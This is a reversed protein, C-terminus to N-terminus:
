PSPPSNNTAPAPAALGAPAAKTSGAAGPTKTPTEGGQFPDDFPSRFVAPTSSVPTAPTAPIGAAVPTRPTSKKEAALVDRLRVGLSKRSAPDLWLGIRREIGDQDQYFDPRYIYLENPQAEDPRPTWPTPLSMTVWYRVQRPDVPPDDPNDTSPVEGPAATPASATSTAPTATSAKSVVAALSPGPPVAAGAYIQPAFMGDNGALALFDAPHPGPRQIPRYTTYSHFSDTSDDLLNAVQAPTALVVPSIPRAFQARTVFTWEDTKAYRDAPAELFNGDEDVAGSRWGIHTPTVRLEVIEPLWFPGPYWAWIKDAGRKWYGYHETVWSYPLSGAWYWGFDTYLWRGHTYPAQHDLPTYAWLGDVKSWTGYPNLAQVANDFDTKGRDSYEAIGARAPAFLLGSALPLLLLLRLPFRRM